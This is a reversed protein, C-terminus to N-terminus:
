RPFDANLTLHWSAPVNMDLRAFNFPVFENSSGVRRAAWCDEFISVRGILEAVALTVGPHYSRKTKPDMAVDIERANSAFEADVDVLELELDDGCIVGDPKILPLVFELDRKMGSYRHDGDIYVADFSSNPFFGALNDPSTAIPTVKSEIGCSRINHKFLAFASGSRLCENFYPYLFTGANYETFEIKTIEYPQWPDICVIRFDPDVSGMGHAASCASTGVWSGIELWRLGPGVKKAEAQAMARIANQKRGHAVNAALCSGFYPKGNAMCWKFYREEDPQSLGYPSAFIAKREAVAMRIIEDFDNGAPLVPISSM